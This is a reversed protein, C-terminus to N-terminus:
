IGGAFPNHAPEFLPSGDEWRRQNLWTAPNPIFQGGDKTWELSQRKSSIASLMNALLEDDVKMKVFIKEVAGKGVKKPYASWFREFREMVGSPPKPPIHKNTIPEQNNNPQVDTSSLGVGTSRGNLRRQASAKGANSAQQKKSVFHAIEVDARKNRWGDDTHEFYKSLIYEVADVHDRMGIERAVDTSCGNIPRESLYYLDLLRRYALDEMLSLNRTHGAYDGINFQYYHM